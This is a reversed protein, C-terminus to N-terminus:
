WDINERGFSELISSYESKNDNARKDICDSIKQKPSLIEKAWWVPHTLLQLPKNNNSKVFDYM